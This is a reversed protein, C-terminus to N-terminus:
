INACIVIGKNKLNPYGSSNFFRQYADDLNFISNRLAWLDNELFVNKGLIYFIFFNIKMKQRM